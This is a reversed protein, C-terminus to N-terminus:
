EVDIPRVLIMQVLTRVRDDLVFPAAILVRVVADGGAEENEVLAVHEHGDFDHVRRGVADNGNRVRKAVFSVFKQVDSVFAFTLRTERASEGGVTGLVVVLLVLAFAGNTRRIVLNVKKISRIRVINM